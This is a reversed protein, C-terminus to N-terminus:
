LVDLKFNRIFLTHGIVLFVILIIVGLVFRKALKQYLTWFILIIFIVYPWIISDWLFSYGFPCTIFVTSLTLGLSDALKINDVETVKIYFFTLCFITLGLYFVRKYFPIFHPTAVFANDLSDNEKPMNIALPVRGKATDFIIDGFIQVPFKIFAWLSKVISPSQNACSPLSFSLVFLIGTSLFITIIGAWLSRPSWLWLLLEM